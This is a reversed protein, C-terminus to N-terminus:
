PWNHASSHYPRLLCRRGEWREGRGGLGEGESQLCDCCAYESGRGGRMGGAGRGVESAKYAGEMSSRRHIPEEGEGSGVVGAEEEEAREELVGGV